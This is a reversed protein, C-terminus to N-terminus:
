HLFHFVTQLVTRQHPTRQKLCQVAPQTQLSTMGSHHQVQLQAQCMLHVTLVRLTHTTASPCPSGSTFTPTFVHTNHLLFGSKHIYIRISFLYSWSSVYSCHIIFSIVLFYSSFTSEFKTQCGSIKCLIM